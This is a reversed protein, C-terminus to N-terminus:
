KVAVSRSTVYLNNHQSRGRGDDVLKLATETFQQNQTLKKDKCYRRKGTNCMEQVSKLTTQKSNLRVFNTQQLSSIQEAGAIYYLKPVRTEHTYAQKRMTVVFYTLLVGFVVLAGVSSGILIYFLPVHDEQQEEVIEKNGEQALTATYVETLEKVKSELLERQEGYIVNIKFGSMEWIDDAKFTVTLRSSRSIYPLPATEGCYRTPPLPESSGIEKIEIYDHGCDHSMEISMSQFILAWYGSPKELLWTEHANKRYKNSNDGKPSLIDGDRAIKVESSKCSEILYFLIWVFWLLKYNLEM